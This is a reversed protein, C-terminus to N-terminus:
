LVIRSCDRPFRHTFRVMAYASHVTSGCFAGYMIHERSSCITYGVYVIYEDKFGSYITYSM